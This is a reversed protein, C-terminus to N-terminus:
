SVGTLRWPMGLVHEPMPRGSGPVGQEDRPGQFLDAALDEVTLLQLCQKCVVRQRGDILVDSGWLRVVRLRTAAGVAGAEVEADPDIVPLEHWVTSEDAPPPWVSM